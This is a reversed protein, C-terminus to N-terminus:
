RSGVLWLNAEATPKLLEPGLAVSTRVCRQAEQIIDAVSAHMGELKRKITASVKSETDAADQTQILLFTNM